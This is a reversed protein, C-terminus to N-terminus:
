IKPNILEQIQKRDDPLLEEWRIGAVVDPFIQHLADEWGDPPAPLLAKPRPDYGDETAVREAQALAAHWKHLLSTVSRHRFKISADDRQRFHWELMQWQNETTNGVLDCSDRWAQSESKDLPSNAPRRPFLSLIRHLNQDFIQVETEAGRPYPTNTICQEYINGPLNLRAIKALSDQSNRLVPAEFPLDKLVAEALATLRFYVTNRPGKTTEVLSRTRLDRFWRSIKPPKSTESMISPLLLPMDAAVKPYTLLQFRVGDVMKIQVLSKFKPATWGGLYDLFMMSEIRLGYISNETFGKQHLVLRHRYNESAESM